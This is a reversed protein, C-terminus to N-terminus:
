ALENAHSHEHFTISDGVKISSFELTERKVLLNMHNPMHTLDFGALQGLPKGSVFVQDGVINVGGQKIEFFAIASVRNAVGGPAAEEEDTIMLENIENLPLARSRAQILQLGRSEFTIHLLAVVEGIVPRRDGYVKSTTLKHDSSGDGM